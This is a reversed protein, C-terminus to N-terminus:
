VLIQTIESIFKQKTPLQNKEMKVLISSYNSLIFGIVELLSKADRRSIFIGYRDQIIHGIEEFIIVPRMRALSEDVVKPHAETFSPLITINHNDYIKIIEQVNNEFGILNIKKNNIKINEKKGLITLEVDTTIKDFIELLSFIGKEVKLRGVYLLKARSLSPKTKNKIWNIDIESPFVLNYSKKKVLREQCTIIDSKFTVLTYMIHYIFPGIFGLITRYEEYGNSRLYVFIKKRFIFLLLYAFLTYPTISVLLYNVEKHKFTKFIKFLFSFIHSATKIKEINIKYFKYSTSKVAIITVDFNKYLGEPISKMDINDCYSCNNKNFIKEKSIIVLKKNPNM